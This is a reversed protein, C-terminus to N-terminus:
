FIHKIFELRIDLVEKYIKSSGINIKRDNWIFAYHFLKHTRDISINKDLLITNESLFDFVWENFVKDADDKDKFSRLYLEKKIIPNYPKVQYTGRSKNLYVGGYKKRDNM